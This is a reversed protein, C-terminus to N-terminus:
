KLNLRLLIADVKSKLDKIKDLEPKLKNYLELGNEADKEDRKFELYINLFTLVTLCIIITCIVAIMKGM